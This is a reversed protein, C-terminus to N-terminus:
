SAAGVEPPTLEVTEARSRLVGDAMETVLVDGVAVRAASRLVRGDVQRTISYGRELVRRPDLARLRAAGTDVRRGASHTARRGM